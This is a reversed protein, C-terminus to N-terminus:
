GHPAARGPTRCLQATSPEACCFWPETLRPVFPAPGPEVDTPASKGLSAYAARRLSRFTTLTPEGAASAREVIATVDAHLLDMRPDPHTWRYGFGAPDLEGLWPREGPESLVASRPPLLLRIALQIPDVHEILGHEFIFDCQEVYDQLTTWPTFAVLSPRLAIGAARTIRLAEIVDARSHGKALEQLVRESLSEVASVVFVCGLRALEPFLLRHKLIHEVKVTVDFTVEPHAEHLAAAVGLAHKPGNLFDPDGFTIHRAGSAIQQAADALVIGAPVVFFRGEYVPTIPCHRCHHLCGRSAEVYGVLREEGLRPGLLRAYRDLTPLGERQPTHFTLRRMVPVSERLVTAGRELNDALEVLAGEFEGGIVSDAIGDDLLYSANLTAYLGFLCIHAERNERRVRRALGV